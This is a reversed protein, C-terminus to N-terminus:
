RYHYEEYSNALKAVVYREIEEEYNRSRFPTYLGKEIDGGM